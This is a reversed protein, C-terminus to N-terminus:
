GNPEDKGQLAIVHVEVLCGFHLSPSVAVTRAPKAAAFAESWAADIESWHDMDTLYVTGSLVDEMRSGSAELVASVNALALAAQARPGEPINRTEPDLPLQGATFVFGNAIVAHSYHGSPAPAKEAVIRTYNPMGSSDGLKTM